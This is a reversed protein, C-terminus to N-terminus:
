PQTEYGCHAAVETAEGSVRTHKMVRPVGYDYACAHHLV